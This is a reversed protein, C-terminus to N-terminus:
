ANRSLRPAEAMAAASLEIRASSDETAVISLLREVLARRAVLEWGPDSPRPLTTAGVRAFLESVTATRPAGALLKLMASIMAPEDVFKKVVLQAPVRVERIPSGYIAVEAIVSADVFGIGARSDLEAILDSREARKQLGHEAQFYREAWRGDEAGPNDQQQGSITAVKPSAPTLPPSAGTSGADTMGRLEAGDSEGRWILIAERNLRCIRSALELVDSPDDSAPRPSALAQEAAAIWDQAALQRTAAEALGWAQGYKARLAMRDDSGSVLPLVMTPDLGQAASRTVLASTLVRLDSNSIAPDRFWDM